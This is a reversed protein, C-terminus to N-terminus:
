APTPLKQFSRFPALTILVFLAKSGVNPGQAVRRQQEGAALKRHSLQAVFM